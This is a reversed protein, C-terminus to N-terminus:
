GQPKFCDKKKQKPSVLIELPLHHYLLQLPLLLLFHYVMYNAVFFFLPDIGLVELLYSVGVEKRITASYSIRMWGKLILTASNLLIFERTTPEICRKKHVEKWVYLLLLLFRLVQSLAIFCPTGIISLCLMRNAEPTCWLLEIDICVACFIM